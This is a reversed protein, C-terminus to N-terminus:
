RGLNMGMILNRDCRYKEFGEAKLNVSVLSVHSDDMAQLQIGSDACDWSAQKLLDKIADLVNKLLSGKVLRAEFMKPFIQPSRRGLLTRFLLILIVACNNEVETQQGKGQDVHRRANKGCLESVFKAPFEGM